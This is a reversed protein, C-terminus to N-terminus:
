SHKKRFELPSIGMTKRFRKSFHFQDPYGTRIGIEKIPLNTDLLLRKAENIRLRILFKLPTTKQYKNFIKTLYSASFGLNNAYITFDIPHMYNKKLYIETNEVIEKATKGILNSNDEIELYQTLQLEAQCLSSELKDQTVPKLLYNMVNNRIASRAYEFDAYGSLFITIIHPFEKNIFDALQIGDVVPMRIDTIVLHINNYYLIKKAEVGNSATNTVHFDLDTAEIKNVLLERLIPEDDVVLVNFQKIKKMGNEELQLEAVM